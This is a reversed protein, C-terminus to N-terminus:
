SIVKKNASLYHSVSGKGAYSNYYKKWYIARNQISSPIAETILRYKLRTFLMALLPNHRLERIHVDDINIRTAMYINEKIRQNTRAVVDNFGIHDFQTLGFGNNPTIDITKGRATEAGATELLLNIAKNNKGHGILDCVYKATEALQKPNIVGYM